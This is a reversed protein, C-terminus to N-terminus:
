RHSPGELQELLEGVNDLSIGPRVNGLDRPNVRFPASPKPPRRQLASRLASNVVEKFPLGTRRAEAHLKAAVDEDLTL